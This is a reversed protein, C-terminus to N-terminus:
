KKKVVEYAPVPRLSGDIAIRKVRGVYRARGAMIAMKLMKCIAPTGKKTAESIDAVTVGSIDNAQNKRGLDALLAEFSKTGILVKASV